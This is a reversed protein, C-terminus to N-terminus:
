EREPRRCRGAISRDRQDPTRGFLKARIRQGVPCAAGLWGFARKDALWPGRSAVCWANASVRSVRSVAALGYGALKLEYSLTAKARDWGAPPPTSPEALPSNGTRLQPWGPSPVQMPTPCRRPQSLGRASANFHQFAWAM